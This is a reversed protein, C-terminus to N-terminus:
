RRDAICAAQVFGARGRHTEQVVVRYIFAGESGYRDGEFM